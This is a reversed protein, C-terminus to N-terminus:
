YYFKKVLKKEKEKNKEKKRIKKGKREKRKEKSKGGSQLRGRGCRLRLGAAQEGVAAAESKEGWKMIVTEERGM